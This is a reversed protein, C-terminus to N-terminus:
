VPLEAAFNQRKTFRFSGLLAGWIAKGTAPDIGKDYSRFEAETVEFGLSVQYNNGQYSFRCPSGTASSASFEYSNLGVQRPQVKLVCGPLFEIQETTLQKLMELNRGAGVIAEPEKIMYYQVQLLVPNTEILQLRLIRPRYPHDLNVISAQEAFLTLSDETFLPVPRQWLRLHVYWAPEALAQKQNDFEGAMYRALTILETPFTM